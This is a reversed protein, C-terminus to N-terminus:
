RVLVIITTFTPGFKTGQKRIGVYGIGEGSVRFLDQVVYPMTKM